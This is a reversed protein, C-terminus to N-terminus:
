HKVKQSFISNHINILKRMPLPAIGANHVIPAPALLESRRPIIRPSPGPRPASRARTTRHRKRPPAGAGRGAAAATNNRHAWSAAWDNSASLRLLECFSARAVCATPPRRSRVSLHSTGSFPPPFPHTSPSRALDDAGPSQGPQPFAPAYRHHNQSADVCLPAPVLVGSCRPPADWHGSGQPEQCPPARAGSAMCCRSAAECPARSGAIRPSGGAALARLGWAAPEQASSAAQAM